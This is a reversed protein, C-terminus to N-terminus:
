RKAPAPHTHCAVGVAGDVSRIRVKLSKILKINDRTIDNYYKKIEAFAEEHGNILDNIHLNKREELEHIEVKRRLDLDRRLRELRDEHQTSLQRLNMAFSQKYKDLNARQLQWACTSVLMYALILLSRPM